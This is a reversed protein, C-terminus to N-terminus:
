KVLYQSLDFILASKVSIQHQVRLWLVSKSLSPFSPKARNDMDLICPNQTFMSSKVHVVLTHLEGPNLGLDEGIWDTYVDVLSFLTMLLLDSIDCVSLLSYGSHVTLRKPYLRRSFAYM